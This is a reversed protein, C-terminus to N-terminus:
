ATRKWFYVVISPQVTSVALTGAAHSHTGGAETTGSAVGGTPNGTNITAEVATSTGQLSATGPVVAILSSATPITHTHNIVDTYKHTHDLEIATSGTPTVSAAGISAEAVSYPAVGSFGVLAKGGGFATWTGYGLETGPNVGSVNVYIASVPFAQTRLGGLM